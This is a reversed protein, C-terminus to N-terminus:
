SPHWSIWFSVLWVLSRYNSNFLHYKDFRRDRSYWIFYMSYGLFLLWILNEQIATGNPTEYIYAGMKPILALLPLLVGSYIGMFVLVLFLHLGFGRIGAYTDSYFEEDLDFFIRGTEIAFIFDYNFVRAVLSFLVNTIVVSAVSAFVANLIVREIYFGTLMM